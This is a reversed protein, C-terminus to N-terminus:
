DKLWKEYKKRVIHHSTTQGEDVQSLGKDISQKEIDSISDWWDAKSKAPLDIINKVLDLLDSDQLECIRQIINLKEASLNM